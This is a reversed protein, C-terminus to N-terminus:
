PGFEGAASGNPASPERAPPPSEAVPEPAPAEVPPEYEVAETPQAEASPEAVQRTAPHRARVEKAKRQGPAAEGSEDRRRAPAPTVVREILPAVAREGGAGVPSPLAGTAMGAAASGAVGACLALQKAAGIKSGFASLLERARGLLSPSLPLTPVLAAALRPATRYTRMTARCHACARLHERVVASDRANAEGDCFASILPHLERCREGSESSCLISRFRERGESLCRNIKTLSFGTIEAIEAYSYGEALLTLTRLEAPKLARLAERTRAVDERREALEDPGDSRAPLRAV